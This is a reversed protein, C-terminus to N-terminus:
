VEQWAYDKLKDAAVAFRERYYPNVCSAETVGPFNDLGVDDRMFVANYGIHNAGILRYGKTKALKNYAALSAGGYLTYQSFFSKDRPTPESSSMANTHKKILVLTFESRAGLKM